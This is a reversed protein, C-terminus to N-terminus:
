LKMKADMNTNLSVQVPNYFNRWEIKQYQPLTTFLINFYDLKSLILSESLQKRLYYPTYPKLPKLTRLASYGDNLIKNVHSHLEFHEDLPIGVLKYEKVREMNKVNCKINVKNSSDLQHYQVMHRSIVMIKTKNPNFVLNMNKLWVEVANLDREIENLCKNINKMKCSLYIASNDAYQICESGDLMNKM